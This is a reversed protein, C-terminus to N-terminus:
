PATEDPYRIRRISLANGSGTEVSIFAGCIVGPGEAVEFRETSGERFRRLIIDARMGLVSDPPGCMGVDSQYATGPPLIREDATTVHTHTGLVAAARGAAHYGMAMKESTAEAHFDLLRVANPTLKCLADFAAFPDDYTPEMKVRGCLNLVALRVGDREVTAYGRGPLPAHMNAPRILRPEEAFYGNIESKHFAHNGLTLVDIGDALLERALAPTIGVGAAANEGNAVVFTPRLQERLVPLGRLVAERGPRGVIDGLFLIGFTDGRL